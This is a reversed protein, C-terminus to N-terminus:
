AIPYRNRNVEIRYQPPLWRHPVWPSPLCVLDIYISTVEESVRLQRICDFYGREDPHLLYLADLDWSPPVAESWPAHKRRENWATARLHPPLTAASCRWTTPPSDRLIMGPHSPPRRDPPYTAGSTMTSTKGTGRKETRNEFTRRPRRSKLLLTHLLTSKSATVSIDTNGGSQGRARYTM